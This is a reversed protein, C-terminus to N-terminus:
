DLLRGVLDMGMADRQPNFKAHEMKPKM